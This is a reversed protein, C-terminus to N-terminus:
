EPFTSSEYWCVGSHIWTAAEDTRTSSQYAAFTSSLDNLAERDAGLYLVAYSNTVGEEEVTGENPESRGCREHIILHALEHKVTDVFVPTYIVNPMDYAIRNVRILYPEAGCYWALVAEPNEGSSICKTTPDAKGFEAWIVEAGFARALDQASGVYSGQADQHPEYASAFEEAKELPLAGAAGAPEVVPMDVFTKHSAAASGHTMTKALSSVLLAAGIIALTLLFSNMRSRRPARPYVSPLYAPTPRSFDAPNTLPAGYGPNDVPHGYSLHQAPPSDRPTPVPQGYPPNV